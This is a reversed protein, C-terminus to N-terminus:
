KQSVAKTEVKITTTRLHFVEDRSDSWLAQFSGGSTAVLGQYDGGFAFREFAGKNRPTDPCSSKRSVRVEPQFTKGGDLSVAFYLDYCKRNQDNRMDFWTIGVVGDKNVAISPIQADANGTNGQDVRVPDSWKEGRDDTFQLYTGIVKDKHDGSTLWFLRDPNPSKPESVALSSWGKGGGTETILLPESFTKGKDRSVILWDRPRILRPRANWRHHDSYVVALTGDSLVAPNAAQLNLNSPLVRSQEQFTVGDDISRAIRVKSRTQKAENREIVSSVLYISGDSSDLAMTQHDHGKGISLFNDSWSRGGDASRFITVASNKIDISTFIATGKDTIAVWPDYCSKFKFDHRSWKRGGDFSTFVACDTETLDPKTAVIAGAVMHMSNKPNIALHPEMLPDDKSGSNVPRDEGVDIVAKPASQQQPATSPSPVTQANISKGAFLLIITLVLPINKIKM